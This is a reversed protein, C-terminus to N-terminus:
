RKELWYLLSLKAWAKAQHTSRRAGIRPAAISSPPAHRKLVAPRTRMNESSECMTGSAVKGGSSVAKESSTAVKEDSTAVKPGFSAVNRHYTAVTQDNTAVSQAQEDLQAMSIQAPEAVSRNPLTVLFIDAESYFEPKRATRQLPAADLGYIM